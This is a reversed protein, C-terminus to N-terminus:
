NGTGTQHSVSNCFHKANLSIKLDDGIATLEILQWRLFAIDNTVQDIRNRIRIQGKQADM